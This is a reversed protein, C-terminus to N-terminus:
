MLWLPRDDGVVQLVVMAVAVGLFIALPIWGGPILYLLVVLSAEGWGLSMRTSGVRVRVVAVHSLAVTGVAIALLYWPAPRTPLLAHAALGLPILLAAAIYLSFVLLRVRRTVAPAEALRALGARLRRGGTARRWTSGPGTM